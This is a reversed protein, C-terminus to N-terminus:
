WRRRRTLARGARNLEPDHREEELAEREHDREGSDFPVFCYRSDAFTPSRRRKEILEGDIQRYAL